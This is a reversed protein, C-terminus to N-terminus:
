RQIPKDVFPYRTGPVLYEGPVLYRTGPYILIGSPEQSRCNRTGPYWTGVWTTSVMVPVAIKCACPTTCICASVVTYDYQQPLKM